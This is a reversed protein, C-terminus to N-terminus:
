LKKKNGGIYFTTLHPDKVLDMEKNLDAYCDNADDDDPFRKTIQNLLDDIYDEIDDLAKNKNKPFIGLYIPM